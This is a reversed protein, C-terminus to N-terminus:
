RSLNSLINENMLKNCSKMANSNTVFSYNPKESYKGLAQCGEKVLNNLMPPKQKESKIPWLRVKGDRGASALFNGDPSFNADWVWAPHNPLFPPKLRGDKVGWLKVTKDFGATVVTEGDPSFNASMIKGNASMKKEKKGDLTQLVKGELNWIKATKDDSATVIKKGNPSFSISNVEGKHELTQLLKGELNWLTATNGDDNATAIIKSDRSFVVSVVNKTDKVKWKRISTYDKLSWLRVMTDKGVSALMKKDPSFSLSFVQDTHGELTKFYEWQQQKDQRWLKVTKDWSATAIMKSDPSFRSTWVKDKHGNIRRKGYEDLTAVKEGKLNWIRVNKDEGAAAILLKDPSFTVSNVEGAHGELLRTDIVQKLTNTIKSKLKDPVKISTTQVLQGAELSAILAQPLSNSSLLTQASDNLTNLTSQQNEFRAQQNELRAQRSELWAFITLATAMILSLSLIVKGWGIQRKTKREVDSLQQKAKGLGQEINQRELNQSAQLFQFDQSGLNKNEAWTMVKLLEQGQLLYSQNNSAIWKALPQAYSRDSALIEEVWALNLISKYILNSIRLKGDQQTVIGSLMLEMKEPSRDALVEEGNLIQQYISLIAITLNRKAKLRDRITRLHMPDDQAEWHDIIKSQVIRQICDAETNSAIRNGHDRVLQCLKQTLFPQGGTWSLIAALVVSPRDVCGILGNELPQVENLKFGQLEIAKGINFPSSNDTLQNEGGGLDAPSAVGLLVFSVKQYEPQDARQNYFFRILGFFDNKFDLQLVSDIEDIFIVIDDTINLLLVEHIFARFNQVPSFLHRQQLWADIDFDLNLESIITESIGAYWEQATIDHAGIGQLDINVCDIKQSRLERSVRVRLSSKGMQRSNLIYCFQKQLLAEYLQQDASRKIYNTSFLPVTGGLDYNYESNLNM